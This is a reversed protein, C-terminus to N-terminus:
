LVGCLVQWGWKVSFSALSPSPLLRHARMALLFHFQLRAWANSPALTARSGPLVQIFANVPAEWCRQVQVEPHSDTPGIRRGLSGSQVGGGGSAPRPHVLGACSSKPVRGDCSRSNSLPCLKPAREAQPKWTRESGCVTETRASLWSAHYLGGPDDLSSAQNSGPSLWAWAAVGPTLWEGERPSPLDSRSDLYAETGEGASSSLSTRCPAAPLTM